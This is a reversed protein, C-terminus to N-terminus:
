SLRRREPEPFWVVLIGDRVVYFEVCLRCFLVDRLFSKKLEKDCMPCKM